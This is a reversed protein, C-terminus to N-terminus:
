ARKRVGAILVAVGGAVAFAGLLPPLPLTKQREATAHLPGIDIVTERSTYSVGQYALALVGLVILVVGVLAVPRM